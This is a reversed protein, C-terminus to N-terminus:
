IAADLHLGLYKRLLMQAETTPFTQNQAGAQHFLGDRASKISKFSEVDATASSLSLLSAIVIFKDLLRDKDSM